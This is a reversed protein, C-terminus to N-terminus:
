VPTDCDLSKLIETWQAFLQELTFREASVLCGPAAQREGFCDLHGNYARVSDRWKNEFVWKTFAVADSKSDTVLDGFDIYYREGSENGYSVADSLDDFYDTAFGCGGEYYISVKYKFDHVM